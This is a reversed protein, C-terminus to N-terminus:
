TRCGLAFSVRLPKCMGPVRCLRSVITFAGWEDDRGAFGAYTVNMYDPTRGMLGVSYESTRELAAHRRELDERSRPIVHSVNIQEGTEPDPALLVDSEHHQLDCLRALANAAGALSPHATVDTVRENELWIERSDQLGKLFEDGTRAPM